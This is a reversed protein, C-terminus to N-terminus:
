FNVRESWFGLWETYSLYDKPNLTFMILADATAPLPPISPRVEERIKEGLSVAGRGVFITDEADSGQSGWVERLLCGTTAQFIYFIGVMASGYQM